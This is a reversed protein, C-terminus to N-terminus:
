AQATERKQRSPLPGADSWGSAPSPSEAHYRSVNSNTTRSSQPLDSSRTTRITVSSGAREGNGCCIGCRDLEVQLSVLRDRGKDDLDSQGYLAHEEDVLTQIHKLVQSDSQNNSM